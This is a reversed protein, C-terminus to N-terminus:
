EQGKVRFKSVLRDLLAAQSSLEESAAASEEATASNTQVVASIQDIGETVQKVGTSQEESASSIEAVLADIKTFSESVKKLAKATEDTIGAGNQVANITDEILKATDRAAEQSKKALNGVEDAVVAFGKGAAGARAAEISANLALINTQFAIDDITKIIKSIEGAKETIETMSASMEDMKRNSMDVSAYASHSIEAAEKTKETTSLIKTSITGMTDSLEEVSSAQETSGQALAQAGSAVQESGSDVQEAANKIDTMTRSLEDTIAQMSERLSAYGGIYYEKHRDMDPDLNGSAVEKLQETIDSIIGVVRDIFNHISTALRGIEDDSDYTIEVDFNGEAVEEAAAGVSKLPALGKGIMKSALLVLIILIVIASVDVVVVMRVIQAIYERVPVATQIWWTEDGVTLPEYFRMVQGSSSSTQIMFKKGTEQQATIASYADASVTDKFAKGIVNTHTSYLINKNGNIVNVYMSPFASDKSAVISFVDADIDIIVVGKFKGDAIVPFYESVMKVDDEDYADTVGSKQSEKAPAYYM